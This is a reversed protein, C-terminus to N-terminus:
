YAAEANLTRSLQNLHCPLEIRARLLQCTRRVWKPSGEEVSQASVLEQIRDETLQRPQSFSACLAHSSVPWRKPTSFTDTQSLFITFQLRLSQSSDEIRQPALHFHNPGLPKAHRSVEREHKWECRKERECKRQCDQGHRCKRKQKRAHQHNREQM